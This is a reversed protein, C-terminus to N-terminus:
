GPCIHRFSHSSWCQLWMKKRHSKRKPLSLQFPLFLSKSHQPLLMLIAYKLLKQPLERCSHVEHSGAPLPQFVVYNVPDSLSAFFLSVKRGLLCSRNSPQDEQVNMVTQLSETKATSKTKLQAIRPGYIKDVNVFDKPFSPFEPHVWASCDSYCFLIVWSGPARHSWTGCRSTQSSLFHMSSEKGFCHPKFFRMSTLIVLM